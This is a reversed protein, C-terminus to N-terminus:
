RDENLPVIAGVESLIEVPKRTAATGSDEVQTRRIIAAAAINPIRFNRFAHGDAWLLRGSEWFGSIGFAGSGNEALIFRDSKLKSPFNPTFRESTSPLWNGFRNNEPLPSDNRSEFFSLPHGYDCLIPRYLSRYPPFTM